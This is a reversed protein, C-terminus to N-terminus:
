SFSFLFSILHNKPTVAEGAARELPPQKQKVYGRVAISGMAIDLGNRRKCSDQRKSAEAKQIYWRTRQENSDNRFM